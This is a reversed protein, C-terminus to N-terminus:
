IIIMYQTFKPRPSQIPNYQSNPPLDQISLVHHHPNSILVVNKTNHHPIKYNNDGVCLFKQNVLVARSPRLRCDGTGTKVLLCSVFMIDLEKQPSSLCQFACLYWDRLLPPPQEPLPKAQSRAQELKIQSRARDKLM